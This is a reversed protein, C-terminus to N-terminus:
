INITNYLFYLMWWTFYIYTWLIASHQYSTSEHHYWDVVIDDTM